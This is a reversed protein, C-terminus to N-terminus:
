QNTTEVGRFFMLEDNPIIVKGLYPFDYFEHEFGGVLNYYRVGLAFFFSRDKSPKLGVPHYIM